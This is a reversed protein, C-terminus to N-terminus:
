IIIDQLGDDTVHDEIRDDMKENIWSAEGDLYNKLAEIAEDAGYCVLAAYSEKRVDIIFRAQTDTPKNKGYKMEIFLGHFGCSAHPLMLDSVGPRLGEAKLWLAERSFRGKRTKKYPLKAGNPIAFLWKLPPYRHENYSCWDMLVCQETHESSQPM